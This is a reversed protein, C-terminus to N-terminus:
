TFVESMEGSLTNYFYVNVARFMQIYINFTFHVGCKTFFICINVTITNVAIRIMLLFNIRSQILISHLALGCSCSMLSMRCQLACIATCYLPMILPEKVEQYHIIKYIQLLCFILSVGYLNHPFQLVISSLMSRFLFTFPQQFLFSATACLVWLIAIREWNCILVMYTLCNSIERTEVEYAKSMHGNLQQQKGSCTHYRGAHELDSLQWFTHSLVDRWALALNLPM